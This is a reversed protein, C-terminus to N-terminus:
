YAYDYLLCVQEYWLFRSSLIVALNHMSTTLLHSAHEETKNVERGVFTFKSKNANIVADIFIYVTHRYVFIIKTMSHTNYIPDDLKFLGVTVSLIYIHESFIM